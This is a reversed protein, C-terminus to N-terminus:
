EDRIFLSINKISYPNIETCSCSLNKKYEYYNIPDSLCSVAESNYIFISYVIVILLFLILVILILDILNNRNM